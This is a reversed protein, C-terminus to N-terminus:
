AWAWETENPATGPDWGPTREHPKPMLPAFRAPWPQDVPPALIVGGGGGWALTWHPDWDGLGAVEAVDCVELLRRRLSVGSESSSEDSRAILGRAEAGTFRRRLSLWVLSPRALPRAPDSESPAVVGVEVTSSRPFDSPEDMERAEGALAYRQRTKRLQCRREVLGGEEADHRGQELGVRVERRGEGREQRRRGEGRGEVEDRGLCPLDERLDRLVRRRRVRERPHAERELREDLVSAFEERGVHGRLERWRRRRAAVCSRAPRFLQIM